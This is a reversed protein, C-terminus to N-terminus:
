DQVRRLEEALDRQYYVAWTTGPPLGRDGHEPHTIMVPPADAPCHVVPGLLEAHVDARPILRRITEAVQQASDPQRVQCRGEAVHRSGQTTGPALQRTQSDKGAVPGDLCILYLDGQRIVDGPSATAIVEVKAADLHEASERIANVDTAVDQVTATTM